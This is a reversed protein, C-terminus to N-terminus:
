EPLMEPVLVCRCNFGDVGPPHMDGSPFPQDYPIVGAEENLRHADRVRDDGVTLWSKGTIGLGKMRSFSGSSLAENTETRAILESRVKTMDEFERRIDRALGDIGRKNEIADGIVKALRDKTETDMKTVMRAAYKNAFNIAQQMPPGEFFIPRDTTLTRGFEIMQASGNLYATVAHNLITTQLRTKFTILIPELIDLIEKEPNPM